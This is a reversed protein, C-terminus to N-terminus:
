AGPRPPAVKPPASAGQSANPMAAIWQRILAVGEEHVLRKGLEPMMVGPDISAIRYTLISQDPQGPVIDFSRGGSGLGAAM